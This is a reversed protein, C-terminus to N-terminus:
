LFGGMGGTLQSLLVSELLSLILPAMTTACGATQLLVGGSTVVAVIRILRKTRM